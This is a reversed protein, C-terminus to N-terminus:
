QGEFGVYRPGLANRDNLQVTNRATTENPASPKIENAFDKM